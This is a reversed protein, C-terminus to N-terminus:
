NACGFWRNFDDRAIGFQADGTVTQLEGTDPDLVHPGDLTQWVLGLASALLPYTLEVKKFWRVRPECKVGPGALYRTRGAGGDSHTWAAM